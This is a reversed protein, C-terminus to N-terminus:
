RGEFRRLQKQLWDSFPGDFTKRAADSTGEMESFNEAAPADSPGGRLAHEGTTGKPSSCSGSMGCGEGHIVEEVGEPVFDKSFGIARRKASKKRAGSSVFRKRCGM